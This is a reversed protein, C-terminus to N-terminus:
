RGWKWKGRDHWGHKASVVSDPTVDTSFFYSASPLSLDSLFSSSLFVSSNTEAEILLM